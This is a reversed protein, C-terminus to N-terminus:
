YQFQINLLIQSPVISYHEEMSYYDSLQYNNIQTNNLINYANLGITIRQKPFSYTIDPSIFLYFNRDKGLFYEDCSIKVKLRRNPKYLFDQFLSYNITFNKPLSDSQFSNYRLRVGITYNFPIDYVSKVSFRSKSSLMKNKRFVDSNVANFYESYYLSSNLSIGHRIGDMYNNFNVYLFQDKRNSEPILSSYNMIQGIYTQTAYLNKSFTNVYSLLFFPQLLPGSYIYSVNYGLTSGYTYVNTGTKRDRYDTFYDLYDWLSFKGQTYNGSLSIIHRGLKLQYSLRPSFELRHDNKCITDSVTLAQKRYGIGSQFLISSIGLKYTMDGNILFSADDLSGATKGSDDQYLANVNMDQNNRNLSAQLIYFFNARSKNYYKASANYQFTSAQATQDIEPKSNELLSYNFHQSTQNSFASARFVLASSDRLAFTMELDNLLLQNRGFLNYLRAEPIFLDNTTSQGYNNYKGSYILLMNEKIDYKLRLMGYITQPKERVNSTNEILLSDPLYLIASHDTYRKRNQDFLLNGTIQLQKSPQYVLNLSNFLQRTEARKINEESYSMFPSNVVDAKIYSELNEYLTNLHNDTSFSSSAEDNNLNMADFLKLKKNLTLFNPQLEYRNEYGGAAYVQGVPRQMKLNERVSFNLVVKESSEANKLLRNDHYNEIAQVNNIFHAPVNKSAITYNKDFMDVDDLLIKEISKGKFSITGNDDVTIGPMKKLVEEISRETGDSFASVLYETTDKKIRIAQPKVVIENLANETPELVVNLPISVTALDVAEEDYGLLRFVIKKNNKDGAFDLKYSGDKVSTTFAYIKENGTDRIMVHVNSLAQGETNTIKGSWVTQSFLNITSLFLALSVILKLKVTM